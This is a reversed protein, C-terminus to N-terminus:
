FESFGAGEGIKLLGLPPTHQSSIKDQKRTQAQTKQSKALRRRVDLSPCPVARVLFTSICSERTTKVLAFGSASAPALTYLVARGRGYSACPNRFFPVTRSTALRSTTSNRPLVATRPSTLHLSPLCAGPTTTWARRLGNEATELKQTHHRSVV